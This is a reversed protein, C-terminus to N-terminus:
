TKLFERGQRPKFKDGKYATLQVPQEKLLGQLYTAAAPLAEAAGALSPNAQRPWDFLLFGQYAIGKLLQVLSHM